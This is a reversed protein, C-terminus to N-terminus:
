HLSIVSDIGKSNQQQIQKILSAIAKRLTSFVLDSIKNIIIKKRDQRIQFSYLTNWHEVYCVVARSSCIKQKQNAAAHSKAKYGHLNKQKHAFSFAQTRPVTHSRNTLQLRLVYLLTELQMYWYAVSNTRDSNHIEVQARNCQCPKM